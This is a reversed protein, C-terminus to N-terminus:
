VPIKKFKSNLCKKVCFGEHNAKRCTFCQKEKACFKKHPWIEWIQISLTVYSRVLGLVLACPFQEFNCPVQQWVEAVFTSDEIKMNCFYVHPPLKKIGFTLYIARSEKWVWWEEKTEENTEKVIMKLRVADSVQFPIPHKLFILKWHM